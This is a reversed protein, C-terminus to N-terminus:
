LRDSTGFFNTGCVNQPVVNYLMADFQDMRWKVQGQWSDAWVARKKMM